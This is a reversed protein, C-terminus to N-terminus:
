VLGDILGCGEVEDWEVGSKEPLGRGGRQVEEDGEAVEVHGESRVGEEGGGDVLGPELAEEVDLDEGLERQGHIKDRPEGRRPAAARTARLQGPQSEGTEGAYPRQDAAGVDGM